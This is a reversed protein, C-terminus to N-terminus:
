NRAPQYAISLIDAESPSGILDLIMILTKQSDFGNFIPKGLYMEALCCGIAWIDVCEDYDQLCM